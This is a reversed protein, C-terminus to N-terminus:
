TLGSYADSLLRVWRYYYRRRYFECIISQGQPELIKRINFVHVRVTIDSTLPDPITEKVEDFSHRQGDALLDAIRQQTETFQRAM